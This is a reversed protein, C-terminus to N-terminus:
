SASKGLDKIDEYTLGLKNYAKIQQETLSTTAVLEKIQADTLTDAQPLDSDGPGSDSGAGALSGFIGEIDATTIETAGAPAQIAPVDKGFAIKVPLTAGPAAKDDLQALDFSISSLAGGDLLLNLALKKDPVDSPVATPLKGMTPLEKALPEFAKLLDNGVTRASATVVILQKGDKKGKDEFSTDRSFVDKVSNLFNQAVEPKVSPAASPAAGPAGGAVSESFDQLAKPDISIWKGSLAGKLPGPLSETVATIESADQGFLAAAAAADAQLYTKGGAQRVEAVSKGDKGAVAFSFSTSKDATLADAGAAPNKVAALDKLPKDASVGFSLSLSALTDATKSDIKDDTAVGFAEIQAATADFSLKASFAKGDGLKGFADSVKEAASLEKVAGCAALGGALVTTCAAAVLTTRVTRRIM